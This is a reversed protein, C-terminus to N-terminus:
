ASTGAARGQGRLYMLHLPHSPSAPGSADLVGRNHGTPKPAVEVPPALAKAALATKALKAGKVEGLGPVALMGAGLAAKGAKTRNALMVLGVVIFVMALLFVGVVLAGEAVFKTIPGLIGDWLGPTKGTDLSFGPPLASGGAGVISALPEKPTGWKSAVVASVFAGKDGSTIASRIGAYRPESLTSVTAEMGQAWSAYARVGASNIPGKDGSLELTTNLPNYKAANKWHGGEAKVWGTMMDLQAQEHPLGLNRLLAFSFTAPTSVEGPNSPTKPGRNPM